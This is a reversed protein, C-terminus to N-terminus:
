MKELRVSVDYTPTNAITVGWTIATSAKARLAQVLQPIGTTVLATCTDTVSVTQATSATDTYKLNLTATAAASTTTCNITGSFRWMSATPPTVMTTDTIAAVQATSDKGYVITTGGPIAANTINPTSNCIANYNAGDSMITCVENPAMVLTSRGNVTSVTPTLTVFNPSQNELTVQWGAGFTTVGTVGYSALNIATANPDPDPSTYTVSAVSNLNRDCFNESSSTGRENWGTPCHLGEGAKGEIAIAISNINSVSVTASPTGSGSPGANTAQDVTMATYENAQVVIAGASGSLHITVTNSGSAAINYAVYVYLNDNFGSFNVKAPQLLNFSDGATDTVSTVTPTFEGSISIFLTHGASQSFATIGCNTCSTATGNFRNSVFAASSIQGAQPISVAIAGGTASFVDRFLNDGNLIAYILGSNPSSSTIYNVSPSPPGPNGSITCDSRTAGSNDVCTVNTSGSPIFNLTARQTIATGSNELTSYGGSSGNVTITTTNGSNVPSLTIGTGNVFNAVPQTGTGNIQITTKGGGNIAAANLESPSLNRIIAATGAGGNGSFVFWYPQGNTPPSTSGTDHLDGNVTTSLQAFHLATASNDFIVSCFGITCVGTLGTTGPAAKVGNTASGVPNNTAATAFACTQVKGAGDDCIMKNLVTGTSANNTAQWQYAGLTNVDFGEINMLPKPNERYPGVKASYNTNDSFISTGYGPSIVLTAGAGGGDDITSVTPTVTLTGNITRIFTFFNSDCATGNSAQPLTVAIPSSSTFLLYSGRDTGCDITYTTGSQTNVPVGETCNVFTAAPSATADWCLSDGERVNTIQATIFTDGPNGSTPGLDQLTLNGTNNLFGAIHGSTVTPPFTAFVQSTGNFGLYNNNNVNSDYCIQGNINPTCLQISPLTLPSTLAALSLSGNGFSLATAGLDFSKSVNPDLVQDLRPLTGPGGASGGMTIVFSKSVSGSLQVVYQGAAVWFGYTGAPGLQTPNSAPTTLGSDSFLAAASLSATCPNPAPGPSPLVCVTLTANPAPPDLNYFFGSQAWAAPAMLLALLILLKRM